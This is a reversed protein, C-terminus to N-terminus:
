LPFSLELPCGTGACSGSFSLQKRVALERPAHAREWPANARVSLMGTQLAAGWNARAASGGLRSGGLLRSSAIKLPAPRFEQCIAIRESDAAVLELQAPLFLTISKKRKNNKQKRKQFHFTEHALATGSGNRWKCFFQDYDDIHSTKVLKLIFFFLQRAQFPKKNQLELVFLEWIHKFITFGVGFKM